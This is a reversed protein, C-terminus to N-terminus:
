RISRAGSWGGKFTSSRYTPNDSLPEESPGPRVVNRCRRREAVVEARSFKRIALWLLSGRTEWKASNM